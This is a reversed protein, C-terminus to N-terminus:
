QAQPWEFSMESEPAVDVIQEPSAFGKQHCSIFIDRLKNDIVYPPHVLDEIIVFVSGLQNKKTM